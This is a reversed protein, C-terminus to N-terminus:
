HLRAIPDVRKRDPLVLRTPSFLKLRLRNKYADIFADDPATKAIIPEALESSGEVAEPVGGGDQGAHGVFVRLSFNQIVGVGRTGVM